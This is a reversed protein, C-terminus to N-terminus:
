FESSLNAASTPEGFLYGQAYEVKSELAMLVDDESEVRSAILQMGNRRLFSKIAEVDGEEPHAAMLDGLDAKIFQFKNEGLYTFDKNFDKVLDMSFGFGKRGLALLREKVEGPLMYYDEQSIEFVLRDRFESNASMFDIFQPFFEEDEMSYRSMNIFFRVKPRRKGLRRVLQILRFLLLNDITGILGKNEAVRMYQRPLIIRGEEDRVRSFCEYHVSRRAPLTVIPQLYLDVRNEALSSRIVSLLQDERKILRIQAKKGRVPAKPTPRNPRPADSGPEVGEDEGEEDQPLPEMEEGDGEDVVAMAAEEPTLEIEDLELGGDDDVDGEPELELASEPTKGQKTEAKTDVVKEPVHDASLALAEEDTPELIGAKGGRQAIRTAKPVKAELEVERKMLQTLLTHLVKLEGVVEDSKEDGQETKRRTRELDGRLITTVDELVAVRASTEKEIRRVTFLNQIQWAGFFVVVGLLQALQEPMGFLRPPIIMVALGLIMYSVLLLVQTLVAM